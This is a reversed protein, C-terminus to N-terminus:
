TMITQFHPAPYIYGLRASHATGKTPRVVSLGHWGSHQLLRPNQTDPRAVQYTLAAAWVRGQQSMDHWTPGM